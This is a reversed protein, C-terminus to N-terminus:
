NYSINHSGSCDCNIIGIATKSTFLKLQNAEFLKINEEVSGVETKYIKLGSDTFLSLTMLEIESTIITHIGKLKLQICLNGEKLSIDKKELWQFTIEDSDYVCVYDTNHFGQALLNKGQENDIVPIIIKM